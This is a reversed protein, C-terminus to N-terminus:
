SALAVDDARARGKSVRNGITVAGAGLSRGSAPRRDHDPEQHFRADSQSRRRHHPLVGCDGPLVAGTCRRCPASSLRRDHPRWLRAQSYRLRHLRAASATSSQLVHHLAITVGYAGLKSLDSVLLPLGHAARVAFPLYRTGNM